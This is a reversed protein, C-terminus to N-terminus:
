QLDERELLMVSNIPSYSRISLKSNMDDDKDEPSKVFKKFLEKPALQSIMPNKLFGEAIAVACKRPGCSSNKRPLDKHQISAEFSRKSDSLDEAKNPKIEDRVTFRSNSLLEELTPSATFPRETFNGDPPNKLLKSDNKVLKESVQTMKLSSRSGPFPKQVPKPKSSARPIPTKNTEERITQMPSEKKWKQKNFVDDLMKFRPTSEVLIPSPTTKKLKSTRKSQSKRATRRSDENEKELSINIKDITEKMGMLASQLEPVQFSLPLPTSEALYALEELPIFRQFSSDLASIGIISVSKLCEKWTPKPYLQLFEGIKPNSNLFELMKLM